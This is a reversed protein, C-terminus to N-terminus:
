IILIYVLHVVTGIVIYYIVVSRLKYTYFRIISKGDLLQFQFKENEIIRIRVKGTKNYILIFFIDVAVIFMDFM